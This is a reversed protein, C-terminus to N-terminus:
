PTIGMTSAANNTVAADAVNMPRNVTAAPQAVSATVPRETSGPPPAVQLYADLSDIVQGLFLVAPPPDGEVLDALQRARGEYEEVARQAVRGWHRAKKIKEEAEEIRDKALEIAKKQEIDDPKFGGGSRQLQLRHLEAKAAELERERERLQREWYSPAESVLWDVVRRSEMQVACLADRAHECFVCLSDKFKEIAEVSTVRAAQSM